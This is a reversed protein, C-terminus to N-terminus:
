GGRRALAVARLAQGVLLPLLAGALVVPWQEAGLPRTHFLRSLLPVYVVALQLVVTFALAGLVWRNALLRRGFIVPRKSRANLVHLLQGLALTTFAVTQATPLDSAPQRQAWHFAGLTVGTLLAGHLAMHGLFPRSLIEARPPRPPRQMVGPEAPELGLALAPFVDTVLNLWLVQLPLLPLPLGAAVSSLLVLVEALNCSFLYFIFKRINDYIVRGEEVAVAITPFRDDALVVSAAERAVDTGRGGMAVGIDAKKLAPADNVGDGLMAVIEGAAQYAEVIALKHAPSVRSFARGALAQAALQDRSLGLLERGELVEGGDQLLGLDRAVAEATIRQDGTLMVTRIGARRLAAITDAVGEAPPDSIGVLGVFGLKRLASEGPQEGPALRRRALALVRLGAAAMARNSRLLEERQARDLPRQDRESLITSCLEVIRGPAGKVHAVVAGDAERHFTAMLQRESSFPVEGLEPAAALLEDRGLGHERAALLLAVETPDGHHKGDASWVARNALAGTVLAARLAPTPSGATPEGGAGPVAGAGDGPRTAVFERGGALIRAVTMTGATLTGTKDTCVVTTSGLTEVAPLRRILARRRAMRRMGIALTITAVVPLGEPVAAIALALGTEVMLWPTGGRLWGVLAVTAALGFTLGVLRRSLMDLRRELPTREAETHQVLANVQGVETASGTATVVAVGRGAAVMTAQYVMSSRDPLPTAAPVEVTAKDAPFSEGTLSAEVTRLDVSELLRADAPVAAGAELVVVDGRVLGAADLREERGDRRVVATPAQLGRVGEMARRAALETSFGLAVNIALVVLISVAEITDGAVLAGAGAAFLLAIILSRFQTALIKWAPVPPEPLFRNPGQRTLRRAAEASSLGQLASDLRRLAEVPTLSHWPVGADSRESEGRSSPEKVV